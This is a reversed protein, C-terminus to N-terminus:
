RARWFFHRFNCFTLTMLRLMPLPLQIAWFRTGDLGLPYPPKASRSQAAVDVTVRGITESIVKQGGGLLPGQRAAWGLNKFIPFNRYPNGDWDHTPANM